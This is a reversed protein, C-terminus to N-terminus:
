VPIKMDLLFLLTCPVGVIILAHGNGEMWRGAYKQGKCIINFSIGCM